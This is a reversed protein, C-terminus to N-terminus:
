ELFGGWTRGGKGGRLSGHVGNCQLVGYAPAADIILPNSGDIAPSSKLSPSPSPPPPKSLPPLPPSNALGGGMTKACCLTDCCRKKRNTCPKQQLASSENRSPQQENM